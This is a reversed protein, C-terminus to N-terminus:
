AGQPPSRRELDDLPDGLRALLDTKPDAPPPAVAHSEPDSFRTFAPEWLVRAKGVKDMRAKTSFVEMWGREKELAALWESREKGMHGPPEERELFYAESHLFWIADANQEIASAGYLDSNVPRKSTRKNYDRNLHALLLVATNTEVALDKLDNTIQQIQDKEDLRQNAARVFRLHDIAILGLRGNTERLAAHVRARIQAVSLKRGGDVKLKLMPTAALKQRMVAIDSAQLGGRRMLSSPLNTREAIERAGLQWDAMELSFFRAHLAQALADPRHAVDGRSEGYRQGSANAISAMQAFASKGMNPAGALITLDGRYLGGLEQDVIKLGSTLAVAAPNNMAYEAKAVAEDMLTTISVAGRGSDVRRSLDYIAESAEMAMDQARPGDATPPDYAAAAMEEGIRILARRQALERTVRGFSKVDHPMGGQARLFEFYSAAKGGTAEAAIKNMEVSGPDTKFMGHLTVADARMRRKLMDGIMEFIRAHYPDYFDEAGVADELRWYANNDRILTGLLVQETDIDFPLQRGEAM